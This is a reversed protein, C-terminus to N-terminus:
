AASSPTAAPVEKWASLTALAATRPGTLRDAMFDEQQPASSAENTVAPRPEALKLLSEHFQDAAGGNAAADSQSPM